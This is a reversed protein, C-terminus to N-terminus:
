EIDFRKGGMDRGPKRDLLQKITRFVVQLQEDYKKVFDSIRLSLDKHTNLMERHMAFTRM